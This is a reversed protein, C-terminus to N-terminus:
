QQVLSHKLSSLQDDTMALGQVAFRDANGYTAELYDLASNLFDANVSFITRIAETSWNENKMHDLAQPISSNAGIRDSYLTQSLLYDEEILGREVGLTWLILACTIGTRDKGGSCHILVPLAQQQLLSQFIQQLCQLSDPEAVLSRYLEVMAQHVMQNDIGSLNKRFAKTLVSNRSEGILPLHINQTIANAPWRSPASEREKSSRLDYITHIALPELKNLDDETLNSLRDSRFLLGSKVTGGLLSPYGGFDRFNKAGALAIHRSKM